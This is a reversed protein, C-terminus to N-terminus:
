PILLVLAGHITASLCGSQAWVVTGLRSGDEAAFYSRLGHGAKRKMKM